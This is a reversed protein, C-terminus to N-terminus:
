ANGQNFLLPAWQEAMAKALGPPTKSRATAREAQPLCSTEYYWKSMRAGSALTVTEDQEVIDTAQLLPLGRLWLCTKKNRREGFQWPNVIQEPKRWVTSMIGVPNEICVRPAKCNAFMMFFDVAAQQRGDARKAEFYRAGTTTLHTCPPFAVVIDWERLQLAVAADLQFHWQPRGGSPPLLDCSFAAVGATRFAKCVEQSEECAILASPRKM